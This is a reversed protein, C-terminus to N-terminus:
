VKQLVRTDLFACQKKKQAKEEYYPLLQVIHSFRHWLNTKGTKNGSTLKSDQSVQLGGRM